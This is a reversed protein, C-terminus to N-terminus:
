KLEKCDVNGHLFLWAFLALESSFNAATHVIEAQEGMWEDITEYMFFNEQKVYKQVNKYEWLNTLMRKVKEYEKRLNKMEKESTMTTSTLQTSSSIVSPAKSVHRSPISFKTDRNRSNDSYETGKSSYQNSRSHGSRMSYQDDITEWGDDGSRSSGKRSESREKEKNERKLRDIEDEEELVFSDTSQDICAFEWKLDDSSFKVWVDYYHGIKVQSKEVCEFNYLKLTPQSSNLRVDSVHECEFIDGQPTLCGRVRIYVEDEHCWIKLNFIDPIWNLSGRVVQYKFQAGSSLPELEFEASDGLKIDRLKADGDYEVLESTKMYFISTRKSYAVVIGRDVMPPMKREPATGFGHGEQPYQIPSSRNHSMRQNNWGGGGGGGGVGGRGGRGEGNGRGRGGGRENGSYGGRDSSGNDNSLNFGGGYGFGNNSFAFASKPGGRDEMKGRNVEKKNVDNETEEEEDDDEDDTEVLDPKGSFIPIKEQSTFGGDFVKEIRELVLRIKNPTDNEIGEYHLLIATVQKDKWEEKMAEEELVLVQSLKPHHIVGCKKRKYLTDLPKYNALDLTLCRFLLENDGKPKTVIKFDILPGKEIDVISEVAFEDTRKNYEVRTNITQGIAVCQDSSKHSESLIIVSGILPTWGVFGRSKHKKYVIFQHFRNEKAFQSKIMIDKLKDKSKNKNWSPRNIDSRLVQASEGYNDFGGINDDDLNKRVPIVQSDYGRTKGKSAMIIAEERALEIEKALGEFALREKDSGFGEPYKMKMSNVKFASETKSYERVIYGICHVGRKIEADDDCEVVGVYPSWGNRNGVFEVLDPRDPFLLPSRFTTEQEFEPRVLGKDENGNMKSVGMLPIPKTADREGVEKWQIWDPPHLSNKDVEKTSIAVHFLKKSEPVFIFAHAENNLVNIRDWLFGQGHNPFM